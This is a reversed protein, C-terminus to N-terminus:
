CLTTSDQSADLLALAEPVVLIHSWFGIVDGGVYATAELKWFRTGLESTEGRGARFLSAPVDHGDDSSYPLFGHKFEARTACPM